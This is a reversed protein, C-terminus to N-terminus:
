GRGRLQVYAGPGRRTSRLRLVGSSVSRGGADLVLRFQLVRARSWIPKHIRFAGRANVRTRAFLRREGKVVRYIAVIPRTSAVAFMGRNAVVKGAFGRRFRFVVKKVPPPDDSVVPVPASAAASPAAEPTATAATTQSTEAPAPPQAPVSGDAPPTPAAPPAPAPAPAPPPAPAPAPAPTTVTGVAATPGKGACPSGDRLRFNKAGRDVFQPDARTTGSPAYSFKGLWTTFAYDGSPANWVCNGTIELDGPPDVGWWATTVNHEVPNSFINNRVKTGRTTGTPYAGGSIIISWQNANDVVNHEITAFQSDPWLQIGRGGTTGGFNTDYIYNNRVQAHRDAEMYLGHGAPYSSTGTVKNGCDHIRNSEITPYWAIGYRGNADGTTVCIRQGGNFIENNRLTVHDGFVMVHSGNNTPPNTGDLVLNELTVHNATDDIQVIARLTAPADGPATTLVLPSGAAGGARVILNGEYTGARICGTGGGALSEVLKQSTRFPAQATGAAADNGNPAAYKSCEGAAASPSASVGLLAALSLLAAAVAGVRVATPRFSM